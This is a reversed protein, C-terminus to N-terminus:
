QKDELQMVKFRLEDREKKLQEREAAFEGSIRSLREQLEELSKQNQDFIGPLAPILNQFPLLTKAWERVQDRDKALSKMIELATTNAQSQGSLIRPYNGIYTSVAKIKVQEEESMPSDSKRSIFNRLYQISENFLKDSGKFDIDRM